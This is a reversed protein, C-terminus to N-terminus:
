FCTKDKIQEKKQCEQISHWVIKSFLYKTRLKIYLYFSYMPIGADIKLCIPM